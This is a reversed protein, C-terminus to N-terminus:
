EFVEKAPDDETWWFRTDYLRLIEAPLPPIDAEIFSRLRECSDEGILFVREPSYFPENRLGKRNSIIKRNLHLAEPIRFSFGEDPSVRFLDVYVEACASDRAFEPYSLFKERNKHNKTVCWSLIKPYFLKVSDDIVAIARTRLKKPNLSKQTGVFKYLYTRYSPDIESMFDPNVGNPRYKAKLLIAGARDYSEVEDIIGESRLEEVLCCIRDRDLGLGPGILDHFRLVIKRNPHLVRYCRIFYPTRINAFVTVGQEEDVYKSCSKKLFNYIEKSVKEKKENVVQVVEFDPLHTAYIQAINIGVTFLTKRGHNHFLASYLWCFNIKESVDLFLCRSAMRKWVDGKSLCFRKSRIGSFRIRRFLIDKWSIEAFSSVEKVRFGHRKALELFGNDDGFGYVVEVSPPNRVSNIKVKGQIFFLLSMLSM